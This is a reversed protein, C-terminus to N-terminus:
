SFREDSNYHSIDFIGVALFRVNRIMFFFGTVSKQPLDSCCSIKWLANEGEVNMAFRTSSVCKLEGCRTWNAFAISTESPRIQGVFASRNGSIQLNIMPRGFVVLRVCDQKRYELWEIHFSIENRNPYKRNFISLFCDTLMFDSMYPTLYVVEVGKRPWSNCHYISLLLALGNSTFYFRQLEWV